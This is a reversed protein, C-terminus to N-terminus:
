GAGRVKCASYAVGLLRSRGGGRLYRFFFVAPTDLGVIGILVVAHLQKITAVHLGRLLQLRAEGRAHRSLGPSSAFSDPILAVAPAPHVRQLDVVPIQIRVIVGAPDVALVVRRELRAPM